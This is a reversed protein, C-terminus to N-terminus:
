AQRYWSRVDLVDIDLWLHHVLFFGYHVHQFILTGSTDVVRFVKNSSGDFARFYRPLGAEFSLFAHKSAKPLLIQRELWIQHRLPSDVLKM